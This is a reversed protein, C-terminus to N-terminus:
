RAEKIWDAAAQGARFGTALCATLLYGGTPAEWDLMEGAAFTGPQRTLMLDKDLEGWGVGGASSIAEALPRSRTLVLPLAKIARATDDPSGLTQPALERLLGAKVGTLRVTKRLHNAMSNRGIPRSLRASLAAESQDPALDLTLTAPGHELADRLSDSLAYVASGEIGSRTVVFEGKVSHGNFNLRVPKVPLGALRDRFHVSWDADFGMNAARFPTISIGRGELWPVWAADSGLRPWSAGGLALITARPTVLRPGEPTDFALADGQWGTWRVRTRIEAGGNLEALRALWQRVLPSAKMAKPFVRLSSGTFVPQGLGEAWARVEPPGFTDLMPRLRPAATGFNAIFSERDQDRTLNLGSKGAMLLKRAVTPKAEFVVPRIGAALLAEAAALGAPGAGIVVADIYEPEM